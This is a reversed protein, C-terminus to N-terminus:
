FADLVYSGAREVLFLAYFVSSIIAFHLAKADQKLGANNNINNEITYLSKLLSVVYLVTSVGNGLM